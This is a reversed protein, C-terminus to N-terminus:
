RVRGWYCNVDRRSEATCASFLVDKGEKGLRASGLPSEVDNWRVCVCCGICYCMTVCVFTCTRVNRICRWVAYVYMNMTTESVFEFIRFSGFSVLHETTLRPMVFHSVLRSVRVSILFALHRASTLQFFIIYTLVCPLFVFFIFQLFLFLSLSYCRSPSLVFYWKCAYVYRNPWVLRLSVIRARDVRAVRRPVILSTSCWRSICIMSM